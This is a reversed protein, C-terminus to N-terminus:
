RWKELGIGGRGREGRQQRFDRALRLVGNSQQRFQVLADLALDFVDHAHLGAHL